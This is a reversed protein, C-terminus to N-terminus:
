IFQFGSHECTVVTLMLLNNLKKFVTILVGVRRAIRLRWVILLQKIHYYNTIYKVELM